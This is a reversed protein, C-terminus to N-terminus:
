CSVELKDDQASCFSERRSDNQPTSTGARLVASPIGITESATYPRVARWRGWGLRTRLWTSPTSIKVEYGRTSKASFYLRGRRAPRSAKSFNRRTM